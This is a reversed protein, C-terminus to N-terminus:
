ARSEPKKLNNQGSNVVDSVLFEQLKMNLEDCSIQCANFQSLMTLIPEVDKVAEKSVKNFLRFFLGKHKEYDILMDHADRALILLSSSGYLGFEKSIALKARFIEGLEPYYFDLYKFIVRLTQDFKHFYDGTTLSLYILAHWKHDYHMNKSLLRHFIDPANSEHKDKYFELTNFYRVVKEEANLQVSAHIVDLEAILKKVISNDSHKTEKILDAYLEYEPKVLFLKDLILNITHVRVRAAQYVFYNAKYDTAVKDNIYKQSEAISYNHSTNELQPSSSSDYNHKLTSLLLEKLYKEHNAQYLEHLNPEEISELFEKEQVLRDIYPDFDDVSKIEEFFNLMSSEINKDSLQSTTVSYITRLNDLYAKNKEVDAPINIRQLYEEFSNTPIIRDLHESLMQIQIQQILIYFTDRSLSGQHWVQDSLKTSALITPNTDNFLYM